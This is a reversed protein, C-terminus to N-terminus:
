TEHRGENRGILLISNQGYNTRYPKSTKEIKFCDSIREPFLPPIYVFLFSHLTRCVLGGSFTHGSMIFVQIMKKSDPLLIMHELIDPKVSHIFELVLVKLSVM